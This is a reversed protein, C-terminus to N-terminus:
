KRITDKDYDVHIWCLFENTDCSSCRFYFEYVGSMKEELGTRLPGKPNIHRVEVPLYWDDGDMSRFPMVAKCLDCRILVVKPAIHTMYSPLVQRHPSYLPSQSIFAELEHRDLPRIAEMVREAMDM